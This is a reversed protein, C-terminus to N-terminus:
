KSMNNGVNWSEVSELMDREYCIGVHGVHLQNWCTRNMVFELMDWVYCIGVNGCM